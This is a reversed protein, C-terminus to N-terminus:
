AATANTDDALEATVGCGSGDAANRFGVRRGARVLGGLRRLPRGLGPPENASTPANPNSTCPESAASNAIFRDFADERLKSFRHDGTDNDPHRDDGPFWADQPAVWGEAPLPDPPDALRIPTPSAAWRGYETQVQTVHM